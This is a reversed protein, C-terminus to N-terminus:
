YTFPPLEVYAASPGISGNHQVQGEEVILDYGARRIEVNYAVTGAEATCPEFHVVRVRYTGRPGQGPEWHVNEAPQSLVGNCASNADEDLWGGSAALTDLYSIEEGAPDWVHLDLDAAATWRLTIQVDGTMLRAEGPRGSGDTTGGGAGRLRDVIPDLVGGPNAYAVWLVVGILAFFVFRGM